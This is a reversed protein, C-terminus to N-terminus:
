FISKERLCRLLQDKIRKLRRTFTSLAVRQGLVDSIERYTLGEGHHLVVLTRDPEPLRDLCDALAAHADQRELEHGPEAESPSAPEAPMPRGLPKRSTESACLNRATRLLLGIFSSKLVPRNELLRVFAANAIDEALHADRLRFRCYRIVMPLFAAYLRDFATFSDAGLGDLFNGWLETADQDRLKDPM